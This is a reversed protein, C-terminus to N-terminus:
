PNGTPSDCRYYTGYRAPNPNPVRDRAIQMRQLAAFCEAQTDYLGRSEWTPFIDQGGGGECPRLFGGQACWLTVMVLAWHFIV